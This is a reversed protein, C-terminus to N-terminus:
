NTIRIIDNKVKVTSTYSITKVYHILDKLHPYDNKGNFCRADDILIVHNKIHHTLILNLEEMVPTNKDGKATFIWENNYYFKSSFHGDLWFLAPDSLEALVDKLKNASDGQIIKVKSQVKFKNQARKALDESLEISYLKGFDPILMDITEGLLTGTEVFVKLGYKLKYQRLINRKKEYSPIIFYLEYPRLIFFRFYGIIKKLMYM